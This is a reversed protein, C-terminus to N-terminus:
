IYKKYNSGKGVVVLKFFFIASLKIEIIFCGLKAFPFPNVAYQYATLASKLFIPNQAVNFFEALHANALIAWSTGDEFDHAVAEKALKVGHRILNHREEVSKSRLAEDRFTISM